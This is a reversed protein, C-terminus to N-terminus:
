NRSPKYILNELLLIIAFTILSSSITAPIIRTFFNHGLGNIWLFLLHYLGIFVLFYVWKWSSGKKSTWIQNDEIRAGIANDIDRTSYHRVFGILTSVAALEGWSQFFVDFLFGAAFSVVIMWSHSMSPPLFLLFMIILQPQFLFAWTNGTFINNLLFLQIIVILVYLALFRLVSFIM